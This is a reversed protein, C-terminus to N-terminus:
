RAFLRQLRTFVGVPAEGQPSLREATRQWRQALKAFRARSREGYCEQQRLTNFNRAIRRALLLRHAPAGNHMYATMLSLTALWLSQCARALEQLQADPSPAPLSQM